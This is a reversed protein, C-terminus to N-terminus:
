ESLGEPHKKYTKYERRRNPFNNLVKNVLKVIPRSLFNRASYVDKTRLALSLPDILFCDLSQVTLGRTFLVEVDASIQRKVLHFGNRLFDPIM